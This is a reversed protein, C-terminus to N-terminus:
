GFCSELGKQRTAFSLWLVGASLPWVSVFMRARMSNDGSRRHLLQAGKRMEMHM